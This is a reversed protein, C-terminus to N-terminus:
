QGREGSLMERKVEQKVEAVSALGPLPIKVSGHQVLQRRIQDTILEHLKPVDALKARSGLLSSTKLELTFDPPISM